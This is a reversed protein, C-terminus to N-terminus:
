TRVWRVTSCHAVPYWLFSLCILLKAIKTGTQFANPIMNLGYGWWLSYLNYVTSKLRYAGFAGKSLLVWIITDFVFSNKHTTVAHYWSLLQYKKFVPRPESTVIYPRCVVSDVMKKRHQMNCVLKDRCCYLTNRQMCRCGCSLYVRLKNDSLFIFPSRIPLICVHHRWFPQGENLFSQGLNAM